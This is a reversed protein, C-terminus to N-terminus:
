KLPTFFTPTHDPLLEPHTIHIIDALLLDPHFPEIDYFPVSLTNCGYIRRATYPAFRTYDSRDAALSQYTYDSAAGYKLFWIDAEAARTLVEEISLAVSGAEARDAFLYTTAADQYIRGMTSNGGPVYWSPGSMLDVMVTPRTAAAAAQAQLNNYSQEVMSFISDARAECGFLLGYFRMWEARALPSVEMYDACEILPIGITELSGYGANEFPSLLVADTGGAAILEANPNMSSGMDTMAGGAVSDHVAPNMVYDLDAVGAVSGLAGFDQLLSLHVSSFVCARRLPTRVLTAEPLDAPDIDGRSQDVLVYRHLEAGPKWPNDIVVLSGQPITYVHLLTAYRFTLSDAAEPIGGAPRHGCSAFLLLLLLSSLPTFLSSRPNIM